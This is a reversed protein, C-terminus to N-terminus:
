RDLRAAATVYGALRARSAEGPQISWSLLAMWGCYLVGLRAVEGPGGTPRGQEARIAAMKAVLGSGGGLVEFYAPEFTWPQRRPIPDFLLATLGPPPAPFVANGFHLDGFMVEPPAVGTVWAWDADLHRLLVGAEAGVERGGLAWHRITGAGEEYVLPTDVGAAFVQFRAAATLLASYGAAGWAPDYTYPLRELILWAVDLDGLGTDSALVRPVLGITAASAAAMWFQERFTINIKVLVGTGDPGWTGAFWTSHSPQPTPTRYPRLGTLRGATAPHRGLEALLVARVEPDERLRRRLQAWSPPPTEDWLQPTPM